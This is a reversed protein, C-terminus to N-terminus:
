QPRYNANPRLLDGPLANTSPESRTGQARAGADGRHSANHPRAASVVTRHSASDERALVASSDELAADRAVDIANDTRPPDLANTDLANTATTAAPSADQSLVARTARATSDSGSGGRVGRVAAISLGATAFAVVAVIGVRAATTPAPRPRISRETSDTTSSLAPVGKPAAALTADLALNAEPGAARKASLNARSDEGRAGGGDGAGDSESCARVLADHMERASAFRQDRDRTLAKAIVDALARSVAPNRQDARPPDETLIKVVLLTFTSAEFPRHGVCAEFLVAGMSWLDARADVATDGRAQEPSMYYPTGLATGTKTKHLAVGPEADLIKAIGFDILKPVTSQESTTSLFINEPKIDRHIVGAAHAVELARLIPAVVACCASASLAGDRDLRARLDIGSLLEQVIYLAGDDGDRGMDLVDVISEHRLQSAARAEQLFRPVVDERTALEPLLLKIAVRRGTWTNEAEYVAGMGGAGLLRQLRYKEAVVRGEAPGAPPTSDANM